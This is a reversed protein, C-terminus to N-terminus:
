KIVVKVSDDVSSAKIFGIANVDSGVTKKMEEDSLVQKPPLAQGSFMMQSWLLKMHSLSKGIIEDCFKGTEPNNDPLALNTVTGGSPWNKFHGKYIKAVTDKDVPNNNSKNVIVVVDGAFVPNAFVTIALILSCVIAYKNM